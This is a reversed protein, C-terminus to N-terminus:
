EARLAEVPNLRAARRAPILSAAIAVAAFVGASLAYSVPDAPSIGYLRAAMLRTLLLAAGVGIAIGIGSLVAAQRIVMRAIESANAGLAVRVGIERTRQAVSYAIVGYLGVVAMTFACVSFIAVLVMLMRQEGSATDLLENM